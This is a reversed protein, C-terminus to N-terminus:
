LSVREGTAAADYTRAMLEVDRLGDAGDPEMEGDTLVAHAFYDFEECVEDVVPCDFTARADATEVVLRREAGPSFANSLSVRGSEGVVSLRSDAHGSFSATFSATTREGFRLDFAVREDVGAFPGEGTAFASVETPDRGLLFRATNLPYVGVDMLAGGGALDPDLRWHDPGRSGALVPFVFGGHLQVPDGVGGGDLFARLRRVAPHAQMRYATMLRVGADDCADVIRRAGAVTAGLPKECLVHKGLRAATVAHDPHLANPTAVYVADYADAAEGDAFAEYSLVAEAGVDAAVREGTEPSGTVLATAECYDADAIAPLAANRAFGGLGVVAFRVTDDAGTDWDRHTLDEFADLRM